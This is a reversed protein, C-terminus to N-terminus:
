QVRNVGSDLECSLSECAVERGRDAVVSVNQFLFPFFFPAGRRNTTEGAVTKVSMSSFCFAQKGVAKKKKKKAWMILNELFKWRTDRKYSSTSCNVSGLPRQILRFLCCIAVLHRGKGLNSRKQGGGM